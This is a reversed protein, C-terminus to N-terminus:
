KSLRRQESRVLNAASNHIVKMRRQREEPTLIPKYVRVIMNPFNFIVPEHYTDSNAM